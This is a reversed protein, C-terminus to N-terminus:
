RRQYLGAGIFVVGLVLAGASLAQSVVYTIARHEKSRIKLDGLQTVDRTQSTTFILIALGLIGVGVIQHVSEMGFVRFCLARMLNRIQHLCRIVGPLSSMLESPM